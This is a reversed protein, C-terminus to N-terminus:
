AIFPSLSGEDLGCNSVFEQTKIDTECTPEAVGIVSHVINPVTRSPFNCSCPVGMGPHAMANQLKRSVVGPQMPKGKEGTKAVISTTEM